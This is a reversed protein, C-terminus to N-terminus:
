LIILESYELHVNSGIIQGRSAKIDARKKEKAECKKQLDDRHAELSRYSQLFRQPSQEEPEYKKSLLHELIGKSGM